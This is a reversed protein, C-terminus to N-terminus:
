TFSCYIVTDFKLVVALLLVAILPTLIDSPMLGDSTFLAKRSNAFSMLVTHFSLSHNKNPSASPAVVKVLAEAELTVTDEFM